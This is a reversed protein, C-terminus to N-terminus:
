SPGGSKGAVDATLRACRSKKDRATRTWTATRRSVLDSVSAHCLHSHPVVDRRGPQARTDGRVQPDERHPDLNTTPVYAPFAFDEYWRLLETM